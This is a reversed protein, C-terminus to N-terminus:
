SGVFNILGSGKSIGHYSPLVIAYPGIQERRGGGLLERPGM